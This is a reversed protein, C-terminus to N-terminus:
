LFNKILGFVTFHDEFQPYHGVLDSLVRLKIHPIDTRLRKPFASVPNIPDAPGYVFMVNLSTENLADYWVHGYQERESMYEITLPLVRNGNKYKIGLYFDELETANPAHLEGFVQKFTHKFVFSKFLYKAFFSSVYKTRLIQQGLTPAYVSSIIGGNLLVCKLIKFHIKTKLNDRRLLELAVTDGVDHAVLYVTTINLHLLLKEVTDAMDFISYEFNVPKDSFGYGLYDFTLLSAYKTDLNENQNLFLTWIKYYDFSSTPFGHLFLITASDTVENPVNALHEHIYFLKYTDRTYHLDIFAGKNRWNKLNQSFESEVWDVNEDYYILALILAILVTISPVIKNILIM